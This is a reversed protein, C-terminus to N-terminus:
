NSFNKRSGYRALASVFKQGLSNPPGELAYHEYIFYKDDIKGIVLPSFAITWGFNQILLSIQAPSFVKLDEFSIVGEMLDQLAKARFYGLYRGTAQITQTKVALAYDGGFSRKKGLWPTELEGCDNAVYCSDIINEDGSNITVGGVGGLKKHLKLLRHVEKKSASDTVLGGKAMIIIVNSDLTKFQNATLEHMLVFTNPLIKQKSEIYFEPAGRNIPYVSVELSADWESLEIQKQLLYKISKLSDSNGESTEQNTASGVHRRWHYLIEPVHEIRKGANFMKTATDWDHCWNAGNDLYLGLEFATNLVIACLHWIYSSDLNLIPDFTGRLYPNSYVGEILLDEDSFLMDPWRYKEVNFAMIQLADHTILDDADVPLVYNGSAVELGMRMARMIGLPAENILLRAKEWKHGCLYRLKEITEAFIPGHAVIIWEYNKYTQAAISDALEKLLTLDTREYITTLISFKIVVSVSLPYKVLRTPLSEEIWEHYNQLSKQLAEIHGLNSLLNTVEYSAGYFQGFYKPYFRNDPILKWIGTLFKEKDAQPILKEPITNCNIQIFPSFAIYKNKELAIKGLYPGLLSLSARDLAMAVLTIQIFDRRVFIGSSSITSVSHPKLNYFGQYGPFHSPKRANPSDFGSGFGFFSGDDLILGNNSSLGGLAVLDPFIRLLALPNTLGGDLSICNDDWSVQIIDATSNNVVELFKRTSGISGANIYDDLNKQINLTKDEKYNKSFLRVVHVKSRDVEGLEYKWDVGHTFKDCPVIDIGVVGRRKLSTKLTSIHSKSIYSKSYINGSTSGPHMRWSYLIENLHYPIYGAASIRMFSDWDHCGEAYSGSYLGLDLGISKRIACLHAIYCAHYFLIPDWDPKYFPDSFGKDSLKDEDTYLAVPYNNEVIARTICNITDEMLLDDSDVPLIYDGAANELLLRMGGIIGLNIDVRILRIWSYTSSIDKLFKKTDLNTSGNDLILWEFHNGGDQNVVSLALDSLFRTDTNFASTVISLLGPKQFYKGSRRRRQLAKAKVLQYELNEFSGDPFTPVHNIQKTSVISKNRGEIIANNIEAVAPALSDRWNLPMNVTGTLDYSGLDLNIRDIAIMLKKAIKSPEPEASLINPSIERLRSETKVSCSNTVVLNGSAAMELPPYSPHPSLMLSLLLDSERIAKAYSVFNMWPLPKLLVGGGLDVPSIKEGIGYIDWEKNNLYGENVLSCIAALGIEYLNRVGVTPRAYFLLTKKKSKNIQASYFFSRDLAPEFVLAKSCFDKDAFRGFKKVCLHDFLLRTNIIPIHPFSYTELARAYLSSAAHLIPEFDQILYYFREAKVYSLGVNAMHATWWATALFDDNLGISVAISRDFADVIQIKERPVEKVMLKDMHAYLDDQITELEQDFPADTAILRIQVNKEALM